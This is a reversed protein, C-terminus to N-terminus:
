GSSISQCEECRLFTVFNMIAKLEPNLWNYANASAVILAALSLLYYVSFVSLHLVAIAAYFIQLHRSNGILVHQAKVHITTTVSFIIVNVSYIAHFVDHSGLRVYIM